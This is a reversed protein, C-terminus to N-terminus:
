AQERESRFVSYDGTGQRVTSRRLVGAAKTWLSAQPAARGNGRAAVRLSVTRSSDLRGPGDDSERQEGGCWSFRHTMVLDHEDDVGVLALLHGRHELPVLRHDLGLLALNM